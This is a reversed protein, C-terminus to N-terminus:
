RCNRVRRLPVPIVVWGASSSLPAFSDRRAERLLAQDLMSFSVRVYGAGPEEAFFVRGDSVLVGNDRAAAVFTHSALDEPLRLWLFYGGTPEDFTFASPDLADVLAARCARHRPVNARVIEGFRGSRILEGVVMAAFHNAGGGSDLVGCGAIRDVVDPTATLFGRPAWAGAVELVIRTQDGGLPRHEVDLGSRRRPTATCDDEVVTAGGTAAAALLAEGAPAPVQRDPERLRSWTCSPRRGRRPPPRRVALSSTRIRDMPM